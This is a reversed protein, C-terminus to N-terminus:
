RRDNLLIKAESLSDEKQCRCGHRPVVSDLQAPVKASEAEAEADIEQHARHVKGTQLNKM